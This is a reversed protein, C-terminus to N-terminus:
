KGKDLQLKQDLLERYREAEIQLKHRLEQVEKNRNKVLENYHKQEAQKCVRKSIKWSNLPAM